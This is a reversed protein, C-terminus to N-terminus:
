RTTSSATARTSFRSFRLLQHDRVFLSPSSCPRSTSGTVWRNPVQVEKLLLAIGLAVVLVSVIFLANMFLPTSPRGGRTTPRFSTTSTRSAVWRSGLVGQLATTRSPSSSGSIPLYAFVFLVILGPAMMLLLAGNRKVLARAGV